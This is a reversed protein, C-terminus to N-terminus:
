TDIQRGKTMAKIHGERNVPRLSGIMYILRGVKKGVEEQNDSFSCRRGVCM